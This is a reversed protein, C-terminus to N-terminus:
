RSITLSAPPSFAIRTRTSWRSPASHTRTTTPSQSWVSSAGASRRNPACIAAASSAARVM